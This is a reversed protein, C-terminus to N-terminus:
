GYLNSKQFFFGFGFIELKPGKLISSFLSLFLLPPLPPSFSLSGRISYGKWSELEMFRQNECGMVLSMCVKEMAGRLLIMRVLADSSSHLRPPLPTFLFDMAFCVRWFTWQM